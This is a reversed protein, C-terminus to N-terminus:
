IILDRLSQRPRAFWYPLPPHQGVTVAGANTWTQIAGPNSTYIEEASDGDSSLFKRLSRYEVLAAAVHPISFPGGYALQRLTDSQLALGDAQIDTNTYWVEGINGDFFQSITSGDYCGLSFRDISTPTKNTTDQTSAITGNFQLVDIRRNTSSIIRIVAFAWASATVTGATVTTPTASTQITLQWLNTASQDFSWRGTTTATDTLSWMTRLTGTTTPYVWMGVSFPAAIVTVGANSLRQSSASAFFASM